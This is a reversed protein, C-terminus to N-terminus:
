EKKNLWNWLCEIRQLYPGDRLFRETTLMLCQVPFMSFCEREWLVKTLIKSSEESVPELKLAEMFMEANNLKLM